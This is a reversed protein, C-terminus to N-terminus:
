MQKHKHQPKVINTGINETNKNTNKQPYTLIPKPSNTKYNYSRAQEWSRVYLFIIVFYSTIM